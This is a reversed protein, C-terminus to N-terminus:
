ASGEASLFVVEADAVLSRAVCEMVAADARATCARCVSGLFDAGGDFREVLVVSGLPRMAGCCGCPM